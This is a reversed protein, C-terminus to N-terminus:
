AGIDAVMTNVAKMNNKQHVSMMCCLEYTLYCGQKCQEHYADPEWADAICNSESMSLMKEGTALYSSNM